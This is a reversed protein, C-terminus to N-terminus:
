GASQDLEFARSPQSIEKAQRSMPVINDASANRDSHKSHESGNRCSSLADREFSPAAAKPAIKRYIAFYRRASDSWNFERSMARCQMKHWRRPQAYFAIARDLCAMMASTTAERFAFGTASGGRITWETADVITDSLGESMDYLQFRAM